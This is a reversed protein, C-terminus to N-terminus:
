EELSQGKAKPKELPLCLEFVTGSGFESTVRLDGGMLQVLDYSIALGLGAGGRERTM